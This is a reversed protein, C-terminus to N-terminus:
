GTHLFMNTLLALHLQLRLGGHLLRLLAEIAIGAAKGSKQKNYANIINFQSVVVHM